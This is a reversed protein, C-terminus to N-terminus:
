RGKRKYGIAKEIEKGPTLKRTKQYDAWSAQAEQLLQTNELERLHRYDAESILVLSEHGVKDIRVATHKHEIEGWMRPPIRAQTAPISKIKDLAALM